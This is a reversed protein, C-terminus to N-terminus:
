LFSPIKTKTKEGVAKIPPHNLAAVACECHFVETTSLISGESSMYYLIMKELSLCSEGTKHLLISFQMLIFTQLIKIDFITM